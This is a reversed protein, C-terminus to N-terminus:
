AGLKGHREAARVFGTDARVVGDEDHLAVRGLDLVPDPTMAGVHSDHACAPHDLDVLLDAARLHEHLLEVEPVDLPAVAEPM